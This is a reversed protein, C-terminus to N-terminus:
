SLLRTFYFHFFSDQRLYEDFINRALRQREHWEEVSLVDYFERILQATDGVRHMPVRVIIKTYDINDELPLIVDTDILVPIRGLSLAELLRNSYNGDGKPSLVFDAQIISDTFEARAQAPPLEITGSAGSFSRRVIFDTHVLLSSKLARMAARRWYVGLKHARLVPNFIARMEWFTNKLAYSVWQKPTKFGAFGCFSVTPVDNKPRLVIKTADFEM